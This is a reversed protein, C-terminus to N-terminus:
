FFLPKMLLLLWLYQAFGTVLVFCIQRLRLRIRVHMEILFTWGINVEVQLRAALQTSLYSTSVPDTKVEANSSMNSGWNFAAWFVFCPEILYLHYARQKAHELQGKLM